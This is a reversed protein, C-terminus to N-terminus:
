VLTWIVFKMNYTHLMRSENWYFLILFSQLFVALVNILVKLCMVKNWYSWKVTFRSASGGMATKHKPARFTLCFYSPCSSMHKFCDVNNLIQTRCRSQKNRNAVWQSLFLRKTISHEEESPAHTHTYPGEIYVPNHLLYYKVYVSVETESISCKLSEHV